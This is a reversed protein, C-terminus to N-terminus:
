YTRPLEEAGPPQQPSSSSPTSGPPEIKLSLQMAKVYLRESKKKKIPLWNLNTLVFPLTPSSSGAKLASKAQPQM